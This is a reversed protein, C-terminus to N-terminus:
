NRQLSNFNNKEREREGGFPQEIHFIVRDASVGWLGDQDAVKMAKNLYVLVICSYCKVYTFNSVSFCLQTM